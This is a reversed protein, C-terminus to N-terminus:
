FLFNFMSMYGSFPQKNTEQLVQFLWKQTVYGHKAEHKLTPVHSSVVLCEALKMDQEFFVFLRTDQNKKSMNGSHM